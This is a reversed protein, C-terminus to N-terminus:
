IEPNADASQVRADRSSPSAHEQERLMDAARPGQDWSHRAPPLGARQKSFADRPKRRLRAGGTARRSARAHATSATAGLRQQEEKNLRPRRKDALPVSCLPAAEEAATHAGKPRPWDRTQDPETGRRGDSQTADWLNSISSGDQLLAAPSGVVDEHSSPTQREAYSLLNGEARERSLLMRLTVRPFTAGRFVETCRNQASFM